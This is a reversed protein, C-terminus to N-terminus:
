NMVLMFGTWDKPMDHGYRKIVVEREQAEADRLATICV